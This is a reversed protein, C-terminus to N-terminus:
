RFNSMEICTRIRFENILSENGVIATSLTNFLCNGNASVLAAKRAGAGGAHLYCFTHKVYNIIECDKKFSPLKILANIYNVISNINEHM